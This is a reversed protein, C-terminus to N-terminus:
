KKNNHSLLFCHNLFLFIIIPYKFLRIITKPIQLTKTSCFYYHIITINYLHKLVKKQTRFCLIYIYSIYKPIIRKAFLKVFPIILNIFTNKSSPRFTSNFSHSSITIIPLLYLFYVTGKTLSM